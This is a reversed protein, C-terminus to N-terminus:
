DDDDDAVLPLSHFHEILQAARQYRRPRYSTASARLPMPVCNLLCAIKKAWIFLPLWPRTIIICAATRTFDLKEGLKIQCDVNAGREAVDHIKAKVENWDCGRRNLWGSRFVECERFQM